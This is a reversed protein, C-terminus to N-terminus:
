IWMSKTYIIKKEITRFCPYGNNYSPLIKWIIIFDWNEYTSQTKMEITPKPIGLGSNDSQGSTESDYYCNIITAGFNRAPSSSITEWDEGTGIFGGVVQNIYTHGIYVDYITYPNYGHHNDWYPEVNVLGKSYCNVFVPRVDWSCGQQTLERVNAEGCFGGISYPLSYESYDSSLFPKAYVNGLAYCNEFKTGYAANGVFGGTESWTQINVNAWCRDFVTPQIDYYVIDDVYKSIASGWVYGVFGGIAYGDMEQPCIITGGDVYCNETLTNKMYGAFGGCAETFWNAIKYTINVNHVSCNSIKAVPELSQDIPDHNEFTQGFMGGMYQQAYIEINYVHCNKVIAHSEGALAGIFIDGNIYIDELIVNEIIPANKDWDGIQAFLGLYDGSFGLSDNISKNITMNSIKFNNGNYNGLFYNEGIFDWSGNHDVLGIPMWNKYVSLDIDAMQIYTGYLNNRVNNLDEATWVQITSGFTLVEASYTTIGNSITYVRAYAMAPATELIAEVNLSTGTPVGYSRYNDELTPNSHEAWVIGYDTINEMLPTFNIQISSETANSVFPALTLISTTETTAEIIVSLCELYTEFCNSYPLENLDLYVSGDAITPRLAEITYVDLGVVEIDVRNSNITSELIETFTIDCTPVAAIDVCNTLINITSLISVGTATAYPTTINIDAM